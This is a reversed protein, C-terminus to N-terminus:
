NSPSTFVYVCEPTQFGNFTSSISHSYAGINELYCWDGVELEPLEYDKVLMDMPACTPGYLISKYKKQGTANDKNMALQIKWIFGTMYLFHFSGFVGDNVFYQFYPEEQEQEPEQGQRGAVATDTTTDIITKKKGIVNMVLTSTTNAFYRGPEAIIKLDEVDLFYRDISENIMAAMDEFRAETDDDSTGPFGGGIDLLTMKMGLEEGMTFVERADRIATRFVSEDGCKSGVHFSVGVIDLKLAKAKELLPRAEDLTCGFKSNLKFLSKSDDVKIRLVLQADPYHQKVKDLEYEADFTMLKVDQTRAFKLSQPQKITNAYIIRETPVDQSKCLKIESESAADFGCGLFALTKVLLPDPFCKVAYFPQVRPLNTIWRNYQTCVNGLDVIYFADDNTRQELFHNVIDAKTTNDQSFLQINSERLLTPVDIDQSVQNSVEICKQQQIVSM